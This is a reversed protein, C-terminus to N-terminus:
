CTLYDWLFYVGLQRLQEVNKDGVGPNRGSRWDRGVSGGSGGGSKGPGGQNVGSGEPKSEGLGKGDGDEEDNEDGEDDGDGWDNGRRSGSGTKPLRGSKNQSLENRKTEIADEIIQVYKECFLRIGVLTNVFLALQDEDSM